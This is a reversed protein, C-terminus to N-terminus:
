YRQVSGDVVVSWQDIGGALSRATRVGKAQLVAAATLSRIGHHCYVIVPTEPDGGADTRDEVLDLVEEAREEVEGLPVLVAGDIRCVRWEDPERVDILIPKQDGASALLDRAEFPAIELGSRIRKGRPLGRDDFADGM